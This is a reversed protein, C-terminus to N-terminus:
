ANLLDKQIYHRFNSKKLDYRKCLFEIRENGFIDHKQAYFKIEGIEYISELLLLDDNNSCKSLTRGIIFAADEDLFISNMDVDWFLHKPFINSINSNKLPEM